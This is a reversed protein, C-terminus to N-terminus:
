FKSTLNYIPMIISIMLFGVGVGLIIMIIPEIATTLGKVAVDAEQEFYASVKGLVEDLKGTEEGVAIMEPLIPPFIETRALATALPLGKEVEKSAERMKEEYNPSGLSKCTVEIAEVILIGSGILLGLTRTFETLMLSKRLKGVIPLRFLVQDFQKKFEPKQSLVKVLFVLGALIAAAMWWFHSAFKSIGILLKTTIPLDAQFEEYVMTLKPIVFIVMIAIVAVMGGLVIIPYVMAGKIKRRFESQKELNDALRLLVKDLVGATEGSRILAVYIQDFVRPHEELADALNGGGEVKRVVESILFGLAPSSQNELISLAETITLGANIMTSLQRTFNVKDQVTIRGLGKKVQTTLSEGKPLLSVVLLERERLIKAAQTINSAEVLWQVTRGEKDKAKYKFKNM